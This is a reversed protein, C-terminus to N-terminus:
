TGIYAGAGVGRGKGRAHDHNTGVETSRHHNRTPTISPQHPGYDKCTSFGVTNAPSEVSHPLLRFFPHSTTKCLRISPGLGPALALPSWVMPPPTNVSTPVYIYSMLCTLGARTWPNHDEALTRRSGPCMVRLWYDSLLMFLVYASHMLGARLSRIDCREGAHSNANPLHELPKSNTRVHCKASTLSSPCACWAFHFVFQRHHAQLRTPGLSIGSQM